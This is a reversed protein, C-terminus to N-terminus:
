IADMCGILREEIDKAAEKLKDNELLSILVTPRPMGIKTQGNEEYVVIKCPLFYSALNEEELVKKAEQPNCVELVIFKKNFEVGKEQLKEQINFQWLVGFKESKLSSELKTVAEELPISVMKTYHFM